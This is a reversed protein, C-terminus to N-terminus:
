LTLFSEPWDKYVSLVKETVTTKIVTELIKLAYCKWLLKTGRNICINAASKRLTEVYFISSTFHTSLFLFTGEIPVKPDNWFYFIASHRRGGTNERILDSDFIRDSYLLIRTLFFSTNQWIKHQTVWFFKNICYM